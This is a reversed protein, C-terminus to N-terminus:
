IRSDTQCFLVRHGQTDCQSQNLSDNERPARDRGLCPRLIRAAHSQAWTPLLDSPAPLTAPNSDPLLRGMRQWPKPPCPPYFVRINSIAALVQAMDLQQTGM